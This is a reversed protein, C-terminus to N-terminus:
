PSSHVLKKKNTLFAASIHSCVSCCICICICISPMCICIGCICIHISLASICVRWLYKKNPVLDGVGIQRRMKGNTMCVRVWIYIYIYIYVYMDIYLEGILPCINWSSICFSRPFCQCISVCLYVYTCLHWSLM